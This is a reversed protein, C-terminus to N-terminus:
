EEYIPKSNLKGSAHKDEYHVVVQEVPEHIQPEEEYSPVNRSKHSKDVASQELLHSVKPVPSIQYSDAM